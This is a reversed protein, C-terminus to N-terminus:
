FVRVYNMARAALSARYADTVALESHKECVYAISRNLLACVDGPSLDYLVKTYYKIAVEPQRNSLAQNGRVMIDCYGDRAYVIGAHNNNQAM